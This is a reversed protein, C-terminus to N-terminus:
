QKQTEKGSYVFIWENKELEELSITIIDDPYVESSIEEQKNSKLSSEKYIGVYIFSPPTKYFYWFYRKCKSGPDASPMNSSSGALRPSFQKETELDVYITADTENQIFVFQEEWGVKCCSQFAM